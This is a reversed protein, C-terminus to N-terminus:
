KSEREMSIIREVPVTVTALFCQKGQDTSAHLSIDKYPISKGSKTLLLSDFITPPSGPDGSIVLSLTENEPPKQM